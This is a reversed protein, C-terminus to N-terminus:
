RQTDVFSSFGISQGDLPYVATEPLDTARQTEVCCVHFCYYVGHTTTLDFVISLCNRVFGTLFVTFKPCSTRTINTHIIPPCM